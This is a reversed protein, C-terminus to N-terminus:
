KILESRLAKIKEAIEKYQDKTITVSEPNYYLKDFSVQLNLLKTLYIDNEKDKKISKLYNILNELLLSQETILLVTENEAEFKEISSIAIHVSEIWGGLLIKSLIDAKDSEELFTCVEWYSDNTIQLLSDSNNLNKDLREVIKENYGETIGLQAALSKLLKFYSYSEEHMEYVSTYAMDSAYIGFNVAKEASTIYNDALAINHLVEGEYETGYNKMLRYLEVPSPLKYQVKKNLNEGKDAEAIKDKSLNSNNTSEGCSFTLALTVIVLFKSKM